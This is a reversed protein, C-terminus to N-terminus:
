DIAAYNVVRKGLKFGLLRTTRPAAELPGPASFPVTSPNSAAEPPARTSAAGRSILASMDKKLIAPPDEEERTADAEDNDPLTRLISATRRPPTEGVGEITAESDREEEEEDEEGGGRSDGLSVEM